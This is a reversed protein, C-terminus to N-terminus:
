SGPDPISAAQQHYFLLMVIVQNFCEAALIELDQTRKITLIWSQAKITIHNISTKYGWLILIHSLSM